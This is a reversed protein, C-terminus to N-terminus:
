TALGRRAPRGAGVAVGVPLAAIAAGAVCLWVFGVVDVVAGSALSAAASALWVVSDVRGQTRARQAYALGKTLLASGAVFTCCWGLGLVFLSLGLAAGHAGSVGATAAAAVLLLSGLSIVRAHGVRDTTRGVVPAFAFMGVLHASMVAGVAGLGHGADRLHVPTMTMVLVMAVQAAVLSALALRLTSGRDASETSGAAVEDGTEAFSLASPDPRFTVAVALAAVYFAVAIVFGGGLRPLGLEQSVPGAFRLLGPGLAAGITGAWVVWALVSARRAPEHIEAAAFRSLQNSSHGIGILLFGALLPVLEGTETAALALLGGVIGTMWGAVLGTRRGRRAMVLSLAASGLATGLVSCAAPFGSWSRSDTIDSAVLPAVTFAAFLSTSGLAVAAFLRRTLPARVDPRAERRVESM